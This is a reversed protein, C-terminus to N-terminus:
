QKYSTRVNDWTVGGLVLPTHLAGTEGEKHLAPENGVSCPTILQKEEVGLDIAWPQEFKWTSM